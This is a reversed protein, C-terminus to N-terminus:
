YLRMLREEPKRPQDEAIMALSGKCVKPVVETRKGSGGKGRRECSNYQFDSTVPTKRYYSLCYNLSKFPMCFNNHGGLEPTIGFFTYVFLRVFICIVYM